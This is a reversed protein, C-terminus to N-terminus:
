GSTGRKKFKALRDAIEKKSASDLEASKLSLRVALEATAIANKVDGKRFYALGLTDLVSPDKHKTINAANQAAQLALDYDGGKLDDNEVIMWAIQHLGMYDSKVLPYVTTRAYKMAGDIDGSQFLFTMKSPALMSAIKPHKAIAQDYAALIKKSDNTELAPQIIEGASNIEAQIQQKQKVEKAAVALDWKGALVKQLVDDLGDLPSGIWAVRGRRDVVFATPIGEQQAADMWTKSMTRTPGDMAVTYNMNAGMDKVFRAVREPVPEFDAGEGVELISVGTIDVKGKYKKALETLHPISKKCPGCWTAWFEVVNVHGKGLKVPKGKIYKLVKVAPAKAGIRLPSDAFLNFSIAMLGLAFLNRLAKM